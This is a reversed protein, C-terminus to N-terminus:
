KTTTTNLALLLEKIIVASDEAEVSTEVVKGENNVIEQGVVSNFDSLNV